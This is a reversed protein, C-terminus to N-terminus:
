PAKPPPAVPAAAPTPPPAQTPVVIVTPQPAPPPPTVPAPAADPPPDRPDPANLVRNITDQQKGMAKNKSAVVWEGVAYTLLFQLAAAVEAPMVWNTELHALLWNFIVVVAAAIGSSTNSTVVQMPPLTKVPDAM